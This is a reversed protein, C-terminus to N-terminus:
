IPKDNANIKILIQNALDIAEKYLWHQQKIQFHRAFVMAELTRDALLSEKNITIPSRPDDKYYDQLVNWPTNKNIIFSYHEFFYPEVRNKIFINSIEERGVIQDIINYYKFLLDQMSKNVYSFEGSNNLTEFGNKNSNTSKELMLLTIYLSTNQDISDLTKFQRSLKESYNLTSDTFKYMNNLQVLDEEINQAVTILHLNASARNIRNQNWNNIALAILIGIVVLVIEGIAYKLYNSTRSVSPKESVLQKRIKNFLKAM